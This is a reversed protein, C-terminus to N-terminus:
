RGSWNSMPFLAMTKSNSRNDDAGEEDRRFTDVLFEQRWQALWIIPDPCTDLCRPYEQYLVPRQHYTISRVLKLNHNVSPIPLLKGTHTDISM